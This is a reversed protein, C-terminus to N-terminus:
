PEKPKRVKLTDEQVRQLTILRGDARIDKRKKERMIKVLKAAANQMETKAEAVAERKILYALAAKGVADRKPMGKLETQVAKKKAAM